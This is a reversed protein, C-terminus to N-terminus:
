LVTPQPPSASQISDCSYTEFTNHHRECSLTIDISIARHEGRRLWAGNTAGDDGDARKQIAYMRRLRERELTREGDVHTDLLDLQFQVRDTRRCRACRAGCGCQSLKREDDRLAYWSVAIGDSERRAKATM